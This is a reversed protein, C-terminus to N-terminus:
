CTRVKICARTIPIAFNLNEGGGEVLIGVVHGDQDVAPGGSNGPNAAADTQVRNYTVRSVVGSTVTGELGYPSGVLILQEGINPVPQVKADPWLEPGLSGKTTVIALDNVDDQRYVRANWTKNGRRLKATTFGDVVHNATMLYTTDGAKWAVWATGSGDAVEITYVSKLVRQALPALGKKGLDVQAQIQALKQKLGTNEANAQDLRSTAASDAAKRQTAEDNIRSSLSMFLAVLAVIVAALAAIQWRGSNFGRRSLAAVDATSSTVPETPTATPKPASSTPAGNVSGNPTPAVQEPASPEMEAAIPDRTGCHGCFHAAAPVDGGCVRCQETTEVTM